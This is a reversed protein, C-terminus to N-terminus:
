RYNFKAPTCAFRFLKMVNELRGDHHPPKFFFNQSIQGVLHAGRNRNSDASFTFLDTM